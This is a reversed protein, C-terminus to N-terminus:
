VHSKVSGHVDSATHKLGPCFGPNRVVGQLLGIVLTVWISIVEVWSLLM